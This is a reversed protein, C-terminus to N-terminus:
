LICNQQSYFKIKPIVNENIKEDELLAEIISNSYDDRVYKSFMERYDDKDIKNKKSLNVNILLNELNLSSPVPPVKQNNKAQNKNTNYFTKNINKNDINFASLHRSHIPLTSNSTKDMSKMKVLKHQKVNKPKVNGQNIDNENIVGLPQKQNKTKEIRGRFSKSGKPNNVPIIKSNLSLKKQICNKSRVDQQNLYKVNTSM